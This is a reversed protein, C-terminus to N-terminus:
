LCFSWCVSLCVLLCVNHDMTFNCKWFACNRLFRFKFLQFYDKLYFIKTIKNKYSLCAVNKLLFQNEYNVWNYSKMFFIIPLVQLFFIGLCWWGYRYCIEVILQQMVSNLWKVCYDSIVIFESIVIHSNVFFLIAIRQKKQFKRIKFFNKYLKWSM